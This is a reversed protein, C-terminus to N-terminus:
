KRDDSMSRAFKIIGAYTVLLVVQMLSVSACVNKPKDFSM